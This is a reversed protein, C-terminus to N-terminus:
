TVTKTGNDETGGISQTMQQPEDLPKKFRIWAELRLCDVLEVGGPTQSGGQM